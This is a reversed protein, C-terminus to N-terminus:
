ARGSTAVARVSGDPQARHLPAGNPATPEAPTIGALRLAAMAEDLDTNATPTASTPTATVQAKHEPPAIPAPASSSLAAQLEDRSNTLASLRDAFVPSRDAGHAKADNMQAIASNAANLDGHPTGKAQQATIYTQREVERKRYAEEEAKSDFHLYPDFDKMGRMISTVQERSTAALQAIDASMANAANAAARTQQATSNATSAVAMVEGRLNTLAAGSATGLQLSLSGLLALQSRSESLQAPNGGSQSLEAIAAELVAQAGVIQSLLETRLSAQPDLSKAAPGSEVTM